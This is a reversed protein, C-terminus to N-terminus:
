GWFWVGPAAMTWRARPLSGRSMTCVVRFSAGMLRLRAARVPRQLAECQFVAVKPQSANTMAASTTPPTTPVFCSPGLSPIGPSDPRISFIRASFKSRGASSNTSIWLRVSSALLGAKLAATSSTTSRTEDTGATVLTRLGSSGAFASWIAASPCAASTWKSMRPSGSCATSLISGTSAATRSAFASWRPRKMPEKPSAVDSFSIPSDTPLSRSRAPSSESGTVIATRITM